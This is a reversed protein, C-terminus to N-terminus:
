SPEGETEVIHMVHVGHHGDVDLLEAIATGHETTAVIFTERCRVEHFLDDFMLPDDPKM